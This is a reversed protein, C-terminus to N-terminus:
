RMSRPLCPKSSPRRKTSRSCPYSRLHRRPSPHVRRRAREIAADTRHRDLRRAAHEAELEARHQACTKTWLEVFLEVDVSPSASPRLLPAPLSQLEVYQGAIEITGTVDASRPGIVARAIAEAVDAREAPETVVCALGGGLDAYGRPTVLDVLRLRTDGGPRRGNGQGRPSDM